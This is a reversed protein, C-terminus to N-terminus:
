RLAEGFWTCGRPATRALTYPIEVGDALEAVFLYADQSIRAPVAAARLGALLKLRNKKEDPDFRIQEYSAQTGTAAPEIWIQFFHAPEASSPNVESHRVGTGASIRQIRKSGPNGPSGYQGQARALRFSM